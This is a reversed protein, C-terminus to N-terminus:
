NVADVEYHEDDTSKVLTDPLICYLNMLRGVVKIKLASPSSTKRFHTIAFPIFFIINVHENFNYIFIILSALENNSIITITDQLLASFSPSLEAFLEGISVIPLTFSRAEGVSVPLASGYKNVSLFSTTYRDHISFLFPSLQNFNETIFLSM